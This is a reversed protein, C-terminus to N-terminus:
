FARSVGLEAGLRRYDYIGITSRNREYSIRVLPAFRSITLSRLVVGATARVQWEERRYRFLFIRGDAILRSVGGTVYISVKGFEHWGLVQAGGNITAYGPDHADQRDLLLSLSVGSRTSLAREYTVNANYIPGDQLDNLRYNALGVGVEIELQAKPGLSRLLNVAATDTKAYLKSGYWRLSMGLLPQLRLKGVQWEVGAQASGLVDNFSSDRYLNGQGALRAILNLNPSAPVRGTAQGAIKLGVGSRARTDDSLQFPAFVTDLTTASTARNVNTSPAFAFELSATIPKRSRLAAAFQDVVRAISQPLGGAQAQRLMRRAGSLDGMQALATALEIRVSQANPEEDLIARYLVAAEAFRRQGALYRGHRFRAESRITLKPDRSLLEYMQEAMATKGKGEADAALEFIQEASLQVQCTEGQCPLAAHTQAAVASALFIGAALKYKNKALLL